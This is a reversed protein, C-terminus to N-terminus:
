CWRGTGPGNTDGRAAARVDQPDIARPLSDPVKVRLKRKLLNPSLVERDVLFRIFAYLGELRCCVSAPRLGRDQEQEIFACVDERGSSNM